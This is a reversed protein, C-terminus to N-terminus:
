VLNVLALAVFVLLIGFTEWAAMKRDINPPHNLLLRATDVHM